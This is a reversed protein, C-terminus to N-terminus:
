KNKTGDENQMDEIKRKFKLIGFISKQGTLNKIDQTNLKENLSEKTPINKNESTLGEASKDESLQGHTHGDDYDDKIYTVGLEELVERLLQSTVKGEGNNDIQLDFARAGEEILHRSSSASNSIEQDNSMSYIKDDDGIYRDGGSIRITFQKNSLGTRKAILHNAAKIVSIVNSNNIVINNSNVVENGDPDIFKIPNNLAYTYPSTFPYKEAKGDMVHWRGIQPDYFRAGYDYWKLFEFFQL